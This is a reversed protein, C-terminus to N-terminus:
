LRMKKKKEKGLIKLESLKFCNTKSSSNEYYFLQIKGSRFRAM